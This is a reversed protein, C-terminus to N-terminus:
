RLSLFGTFGMARGILKAGPSPAADAAHEVPVGDDGSLLRRVPKASVGPCWM